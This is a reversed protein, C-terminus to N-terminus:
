LQTVALITARFALKNAVTFSSELSFFFFSFSVVSLASARLLGVASLPATTQAEPAAVSGPQLLM